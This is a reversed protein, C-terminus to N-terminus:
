EELVQHYGEVKLTIEEYQLLCKHLIQEETTGSSLFSNVDDRQCNAIYNNTGEAAVENLLVLRAVDADSLAFNGSAKGDILQGESELSM